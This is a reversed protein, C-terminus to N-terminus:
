RFHMGPPLPLGPPFPLPVTIVAEPEPCIRREHYYGERDYGGEIRCPGQRNGQDYRHREMAREREIEQQRQREMEYREREYREQDHEREYRDGDYRDREHRHEHEYGDRRGYGEEYHDALAPVTVVIAICALLAKVSHQKM